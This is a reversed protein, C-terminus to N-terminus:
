ENAHQHPPWKKTHLHGNGGHHVFGTLCHAADSSCRVKFRFDLDMDSTMLSRLFSSASPEAEAECARGSSAAVASCCKRLRLQDRTVNLSHQLLKTNFLKSLIWWFLYSIVTLKVDPLFHDLDNFDSQCSWLVVLFHPAVFKLQNNLFVHYRTHM